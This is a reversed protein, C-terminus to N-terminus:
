IHLGKSHTYLPTGHVPSGRWAWGLDVGQSCGGPSAHLTPAVDPDMVLGGVAAKVAGGAVCLRM